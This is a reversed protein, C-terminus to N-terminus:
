GGAQAARAAQADFIQRRKESNFMMQRLMDQQSMAYGAGALGGVAALIPQMRSVAPAPIGRGTVYHHLADVGKGLLYGGAMGGMGALGTGILPVIPHSPLPQDALPLEEALKVLMVKYAASNM